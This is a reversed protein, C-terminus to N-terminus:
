EDEEYYDDRVEMLDGSRDSIYLNWTHGDEGPRTASKLIYTWVDWYDANDPGEVLIALDEADIEYTQAHLQRAAFIVPIYNGHEGSVLKKPDM